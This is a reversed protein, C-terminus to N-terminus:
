IRPRRARRLFRFLHGSHCRGEFTTALIFSLFFSLYISLSLSLSQATTLTGIYDPDTAFTQRDFSPWEVESSAQKGCLRQQKKTQSRNAKINSQENGRKV